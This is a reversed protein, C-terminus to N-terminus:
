ADIHAMLSGLRHIIEYDYLEVKLIWRALKGSPHTMNRLWTLAKHDSYVVSKVGYVYAHFYQLAWVVTFAEKETVVWNKESSSFGKSAYSKVMQMEKDWYLVLVLIVLTQIVCITRTCYSLALIPATALQMKLTQFAAECENSWTFAVNKQLLKNLPNVIDSFGSVFRQYYSALGIFRRLEQLNKPPPYETNAELKEPNPLLGDGSVVFGLYKVSKRAFFCKSPKLKM